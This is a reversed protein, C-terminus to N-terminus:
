DHSHGHDGEILSDGDGGDTLVNHSHTHSHSHGTLLQLGFMIFFGVVSAIFQLIGTRDGKWIEFFIVYLLTGSALGQLVVSSIGAATAGGGGVLLLGIGIGLPSVIAFTTIYVIMLWTKTRTAILEVGICFAIVLKHASVAGLMYWVHSTSSELGVALGEFLEHISLALVILLGRLASTVDDGVNMPMHSHHHSHGHGNHQHSELDKKPEVLDATSNNVSKEGNSVGSRSQRVSLNRVLPAARGNKRERHHIYMHVLEEVLYMIFFGCCTLLPTLSFDFENLAGTSQLYEVNEQVEPVLHMFTTSLLVGGGFSLLTMVVRNTSKLNSADEASLWNFKKALLLPVLGCIMSACFLVIMSVGKALVVGETDDAAHRLLREVHDASM